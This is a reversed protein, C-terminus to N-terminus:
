RLVALLRELAAVEFGPPIRLRQGGGLELEFRDDRAESRVEIIAAAAAVEPAGVASWRRQGKDAARRLRSGWWALTNANVGISAAFAATTQGSRRWARVRKSWEESSSGKMKREEETRM